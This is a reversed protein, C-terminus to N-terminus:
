VPPATPIAFPQLRLALAMQSRTGTKDFVSKLHTRVTGVRIGLTTGIQRPTLGDAILAAVAAERATLSFCDAIVVTDVQRRVDSEAIFIAARCASVGGPTDCHAIPVVSLLWPPQSSPRAILLRQASGTAGRLAPGALARAVVARLRATEGPSMGALGGPALVLGDREALQHAARHNVFHPQCAGDVLIVAIDLADLAGRLSLAPGDM